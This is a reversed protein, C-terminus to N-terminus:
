SLGARSPISSYVLAHIWPSDRYILRNRSLRQPFRRFRWTATPSQTSQSPVAAETHNINSTGVSQTGKRLWGARGLPLSLPPNCIPQSAPRSARMHRKLWHMRNRDRPRQMANRCTGLSLSFCSIKARVGSSRPRSRNHNQVSLCSRCALTPALEAQKGAADTSRSATTCQIPWTAADWDMYAGAGVAQIGDREKRMWASHCRQSFVPPAANSACQTLCNSTDAQM